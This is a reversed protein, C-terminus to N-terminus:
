VSPKVNELRISQYLPPNITWEIDADHEPVTAVLCGWIMVGGGGYKVTPILHKPQFVTNPKQWGYHHNNM